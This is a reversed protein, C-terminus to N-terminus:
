HRVRHTFSLVSVNFTTANVNAGATADLIIKAVRPQGCRVAYHLATEGRSSVASVDCGRGLLEVVVDTNALFAAIHLPTLGSQMTVVVDDDDAAYKSAM